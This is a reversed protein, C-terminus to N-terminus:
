DVEWDLTGRLAPDLEADLLDALRQRAGKGAKRLIFQLRGQAPRKKEALINCGDGELIRRYAAAAEAFRGPDLGRIDMQYTVRSELMLILVFGFGTALVAVHPLDLGCSLGIMTVLIVQGTLHASRLATRFRMLGGMGFLVFGVVLGHEVVLIGILAGIVSYMISVKPAEIEEVTDATRVRFPHYGIVAGLVAALGLVLFADLLFDYQSFGDWGIRDPMPSSVIEEFQQLLASTKLAVFPAM